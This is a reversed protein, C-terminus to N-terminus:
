SSDKFQYLIKMYKTLSICCNGANRSIVSDVEQRASCGHKDQPMKDKRLELVTGKAVLAAFTM